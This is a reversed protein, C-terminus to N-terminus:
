CNRRTTKNEEFLIEMLSIIKEFSNAQIFPINTNNQNDDYIVKVDSYM